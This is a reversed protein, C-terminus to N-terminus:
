RWELSTIGTWPKPATQWNKSESGSNVWTLKRSSRKLICTVNWATRITIPRPSWAQRKWNWQAWPRVERACIYFINIKLPSFCCKDIIAFHTTCSHNQHLRGTQGAFKVCSHLTISRLVRMQTRIITEAPVVYLLFLGREKGGDREGEKPEERMTLFSFKRWAPRSKKGTRGFTGCFWLLLGLM